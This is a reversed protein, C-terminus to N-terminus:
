HLSWMFFHVFFHLNHALFFVITTLASDMEIKVKQKPMLGVILYLVAVGLISRHIHITCVRYTESGWPFISSFSGYVYLLTCESHVTSFSCKMPVYSSIRKFQSNVSSVAPMVKRSFILCHLAFEFIVCFRSLVFLKM